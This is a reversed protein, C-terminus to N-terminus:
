RAPASGEAVVWGLWGLNSPRGSVARGGGICSRKQRRQGTM